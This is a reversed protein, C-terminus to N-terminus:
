LEFRAHEESPVLDRYETNRAIFGRVFPCFPRVRLGQRRADDLAFRILESGLGHGSYQEGVETHLFALVDSERDDREYEAFGASEGDAIIEYRAQEPRDTVTTDM